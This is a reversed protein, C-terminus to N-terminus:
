HFAQYRHVRFHESWWVHNEHSQLVARHQKTDRGVGGGKKKRVLVQSESPKSRLKRKTDADMLSSFILIYYGM